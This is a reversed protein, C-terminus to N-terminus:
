ETVNRARTSGMGVMIGLILVGMLLLWGKLQATKSAGASKSHITFNEVTSIPTGTKDKLIAEIVYTGSDQFNFTVMAVGDLT